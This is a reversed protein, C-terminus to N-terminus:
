VTDYPDLKESELHRGAPLYKRRLPRTLSSKRNRFKERLEMLMKGLMNEGSGNVEGWLRHVAIWLDWSRSPAQQGYRPLLGRLEPHQTFKPWFAACETSNRRTGILAIASLIWTYLGHAAM